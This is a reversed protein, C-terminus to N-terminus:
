EFAGHVLVHAWFGNGEDIDRGLSLPEAFGDILGNGAHEGMALEDIARFHRRELRLKRCKGAGFM